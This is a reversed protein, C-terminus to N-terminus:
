IKKLAETYGKDILEVLVTLQSRDTLVEIIPRKPLEFTAGARKKLLAKMIFFEPNWNVKPKSTRSKSGTSTNLKPLTTLKTVRPTNNGKGSKRSLRSQSSRKKINQVTKKRLSKRKVRKELATILVNASPWTSKGGEQLAEARSDATGVTVRIGTNAVLINGSKGTQLSAFLTNENRLTKITTAARQRIEEFTTFKGGIGRRRLITGVWGIDQWPKGGGPPSKHESRAKFRQQLFSLYAQGAAKIGKVAAPSSVLSRRVKKPLKRLVESRITSRLEIM